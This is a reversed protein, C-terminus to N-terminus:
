DVFYMKMVGKNKADIEGRYSCRFEDKVLEYTTQSINVKGPESNEEMRAATNVTDGWIDYAFKIVGVIGAVVNGSHVGIRVEFTKDGMQKKREHMFAAIERAARVMATAHEPNPIPLGSAALYADGVTKIKEINNKRIIEDFAKFCSHLEDVLQQPTMKEGAKTFGVFDTFMVTVHDFYKAEATGKEKLEDAVEAPLINLLLDDSRKKEVSLLSNSRKQLFYNRFMFLIVMILLLMAAIFFIRENHKKALALSKLDQERKRELEIIKIKNVSGFVSDHMTVYQEYSALASRYDGTMKQAESLYQSYTQLYDLDGIEKAIAVAKTLYEIASTLKEKKEAATQRVLSDRAIDLYCEGVNGVNAILDNKDGLEEFLKIARLGFELAKPYNRLNAYAGSINGLDSAIGHTDKLEESMKLARESFELAKAYNSLNSYTNGMNGLTIAIGDKKELEEFIKLANSYYELATAYNGQNNYINAINGYNTALAKKDGLEENIKLSKLAYELAKPYDSRSLNNVGLMGNATAIGKKWGLKEALSLGESGYQIGKAPDINVCAYSLSTLLKVRNSDEKGKPLEKLLSDILLQGQLRATCPSTCLLYLLLVLWQLKRKVPSNYLM